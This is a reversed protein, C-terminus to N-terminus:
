ISSFFSKNEKVELKLFQFNTLENSIRPTLYDFSKDQEDKIDIVGNVTGLSSM